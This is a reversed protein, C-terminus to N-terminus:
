NEYLRLNSQKGDPDGLPSPFFESVLCILSSIPPRDARMRMSRSTEIRKNLKWELLNWHGLLLFSLRAAQVRRM